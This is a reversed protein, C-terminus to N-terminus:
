KVKNKKFNRSYNNILESKKRRLIENIPTNLLNGIVESKNNEISGDPYINFYSTNFEKIDDYNIIINSKRKINNIINKVNDSVKGDIYFEDKYKISDRIPYYRLIKWRSVNYKKIIEYINELETINYKSVVTNIKIDIKNNCINLIEIVKSLHEKGRGIKKNIDEKTSDISFTIIDFKQIIKEMLYKDIVKGNSTLSLIISPDKQKAYDVLKFLNDYLLAEGGSFTLKHIKIKLLNDLIEKNQKLSNEKCKKRFCFKCNENCNSTINWCVTYISNM